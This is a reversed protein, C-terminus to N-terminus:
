SCLHQHLRSDHIEGDDMAERLRIAFLGFRMWCLFLLDSVTNALFRVLTTLREVIPADINKLLHM